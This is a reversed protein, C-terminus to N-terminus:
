GSDRRSPGGDALDPRLHQSLPRRAITRRRPVRMCALSTVPARGVTLVAHLM